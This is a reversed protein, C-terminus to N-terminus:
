AAFAVTESLVRAVPGVYYHQLLLLASVAAFTIFVALGFRKAKAGGPATLGLIHSLLAAALVALLLFSPLLYRAQIGIVRVMGVPTYTIYLAAIVAGTYSLALGLLGIAPKTKLSSKEHVSIAAAFLLVLPSCLNILPVATDLAGFTGLQGLFLNNEYLTGLAVMCFRPINSLIFALQGTQEVNPLMRGVVGYNLRMAGGYWGVAATAVVAASIAAVAVTTKKVKCKWATKPLVLPLALWLLNLWPKIANMAVFAALFVLLDKDTIEDKCYFSAVLYYLGLLLADYNASAGMYLSLPLLMLALFVLKYRKCNKLAFYCLLTYLLLNAIRGAYLCGLASFGLLRAAAMFIAQHLYPLLQVVLPEGLPKQPTFAGSKAILLNAKYNVFASAISVFADDVQPSNEDNADEYHYYVKVPQGNHANVWAGPFSEVLLNVDGPYTRQADFNFRGMSIAYARLYHDAEDPVQLPPSAFCYLMGCIFICAAAKASFSKLFNVAFFVAAYFVSAAAWLALTLGLPALRNFYYFVRWYYGVGVAALSLALYGAAWKLLAAKDIKVAKTKLM